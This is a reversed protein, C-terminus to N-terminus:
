SGGKLLNFFLDSPQTSTSTSTTWGKGDWVNNVRYSNTGVKQREVQAINQCKYAGRQSKPLANLTANWVTQYTNNSM